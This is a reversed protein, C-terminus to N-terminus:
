VPHRAVLKMPHGVAAAEISRGLGENFAPLLAAAAGAGHGNSTVMMRQLTMDRRPKVEVPRYALGLEQVRTWVREGDREAFALSLREL